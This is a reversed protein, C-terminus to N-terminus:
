NSICVVGVGCSRGRWHRLWGEYPNAAPESRAEREIADFVDAINIITETMYGDDRIKEFAAKPMGDRIDHLFVVSNKNMYPLYANFDQYMRGKDGDIFLVDIGGYREKASSLDPPPLSGREIWMFDLQPFNQNFLKQYPCGRIECAIMVRLTTLCKCWHYLGGGKDAGIEMVVRPSYEKAIKIMEILETKRQLPFFLPTDFVEHYINEGPLRLHDDRFFEEICNLMGDPFPADMM